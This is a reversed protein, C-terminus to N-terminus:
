VMSSPTWRHGGSRAVHHLGFHEYEVLVVAKELRVLEEYAVVDSACRDDIIV